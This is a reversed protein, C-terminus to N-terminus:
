ATLGRPQRSVRLCLGWPLSRRAARKWTEKAQQKYYNASTLLQPNGAAEIELLLGRAYDVIPVTNTNFVGADTAPLTPSSLGVLTIPLGNRMWPVPKICATEGGNSVMVERYGYQRMDPRASVLRLLHTGAQDTWTSSDSIAREGGVYSFSTDYAWAVYNSADVGGSTSLVLACRTNGDLIAPNTFTFAVPTRTGPVDSTDMTATANGVVTGTPAGGATTQIELTLTGTPAGVARLPIWVSSVETPLSVEIPQSLKINASTSSLAQEGRNITRGPMVVDGSTYHLDAWVECLWVWGEPITFDSTDDFSMRTASSQEIPLEAAAAYVAQTIAENLQDFTHTSSRLLEIHSPTGSFDTTPTFTCTAADFDDIRRIETVGNVWALIEGGKWHGNPRENAYQDFTIASSSASSPPAIWYEDRSSALLRILTQRVQRFSVSIGTM